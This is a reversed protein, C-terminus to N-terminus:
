RRRGSWPRRWARRRPQRMFPPRAPVRELTAKLADASARDIFGGVLGKPQTEAVELLCTACPHGDMKDGELAVFPSGPIVEGCAFVHGHADVALHWRAAHHERVWLRKRRLGVAGCHRCCCLGPHGAEDMCAHVNQGDCELDARWPHRRCGPQPAPEGSVGPLAGSMAAVLLAFSRM